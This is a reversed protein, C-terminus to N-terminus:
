GNSIKRFENVYKNAKKDSNGYASVDISENIDATDSPQVYFRGRGTNFMSEIEGKDRPRAPKLSITVTMKEPFDQIGMDGSFSIDTKECALNGIVAIPNLPNGVTLHWQGTADGTLLANVAQGGQPTNFLKMLQGGVINNLFKSDKFDELSGFADKAGSFMKGIDGAVSGLFGGYDGSQLKALDGLPRASSGDGVYRVSGGWFPANNYTLALINALQDLMMVKPNAGELSKLEYEFKLTFSQDFTLGKDRQLVEKIVNLPGFVHNPYTEKFVDYGANQKKSNSEVAGKGDSANAAATLISSGNVLKGFKGSSEATKANITQVEAEAKKWNFGHSFKVIESMSNGTAEGLFSIARAIDPQANSQRNGAKDLKGPSIIDDEAPMPFRRLTLMMNNPIKGYYKVLAFDSYDYRYGYNGKIAKTKEIIISATPNILENPDIKTYAGDSSKYGDKSGTLPNGRYNILSYKNFTSHPKPGVTIKAPKSGSDPNDYAESDYDKIYLSGKTEIYSKLKGLKSKSKSNTADKQDSSKAPNTNEGTESEVQDASEEINLHQKLSVTPDQVPGLAAKGIKIGFPM